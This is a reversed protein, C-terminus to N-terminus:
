LRKILNYDFIVEKIVYAINKESLQFHPYLYLLGTLSGAPMYEMVVWLFDDWRENVQFFYLRYTEKYTVINSHSLNKMMSIEDLIKDEDTSQLDLRKIAVKDLSQIDIASYVLGYTGEGIEKINLFVSCPNQNKAITDAILVSFILRGIPEREFSREPLEEPILPTPIFSISKNLKKKTKRNSRSPQMPRDKKKSKKSKEIMFSGSKELNGPLKKQNLNKSSRQKRVIKTSLNPSSETRKVKFKKKM